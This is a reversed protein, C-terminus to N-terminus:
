AARTDLERSLLEIIGEELRAIVHSKDGMMRPMMDYIREAEHIALAHIWAPLSDSPKARLKM